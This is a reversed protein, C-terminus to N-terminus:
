LLTISVGTLSGSTHCTVIKIHTLQKGETLVSHKVHVSLFM